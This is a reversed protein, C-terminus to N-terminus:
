NEGVQGPTLKDKHKKLEKEFEKLEEKKDSLEQMLDYVGRKKEEDLSFEPIYSDDEIIDVELQQLYTVLNNNQKVVQVLLKKTDEADIQIDNIKNNMYLLLEFLERKTFDKINIDKKM